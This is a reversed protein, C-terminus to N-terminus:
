KQCSAVILKVVSYFCESPAQPPSFTESKKKKKKEKEKEKDKDKEKKQKKPIIRLGLRSKERKVKKGKPRNFVAFLLSYTKLLSDIFSM